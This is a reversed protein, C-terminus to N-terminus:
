QVGGAASRERRIKESESVYSSPLTTLAVSQVKKQRSKMELQDFRARLKDMSLVNAMEFEDKQVWRIVNEIQEPTRRDRTLMLQATKAWNREQPMTIRYDPKNRLIESKLLNALRNADHSPATEKPRSNQSPDSGIQPESTINKSSSSSSSPSGGFSGQLPEKLTDKMRDKPQPVNPHKLSQIGGNARLERVQEDKLMRRSFIVNDATRSLVGASELEGLLAQVEEVGGGVMRALVHPLIPRLIDKCGDKSGGETCPLTLHGYPQGQHMFSLM